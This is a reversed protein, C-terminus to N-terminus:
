KEIQTHLRQTVTVEEAAEQEDSSIVEKIEICEDNEEGDNASQDSDSSSGYSYRLLM